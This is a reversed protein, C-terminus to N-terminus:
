GHDLRVAATGEAVLRDGVVVRHATRVHDGSVDTIEGECRVTEGARVISRFRFALERVFAQPGFHDLLQEALLAGLMPGDVVPSEFGAQQAYDRDYHMRHWDWTAGAYAVLRPLGLEREVPTIADGTNV